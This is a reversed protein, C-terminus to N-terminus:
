RAALDPREGVRIRLGARVEPVRDGGAGLGHVATVAHALLRRPGGGTAEGVEVDELRGARVEGAVVVEGQEDDIGRADLRLRRQPVSEAEAAVLGARDLDRVDLNGGLLQDPRDAVACGRVVLGDVGPEQDARGRDPVADRETRDVDGLAMRGPLLVDVNPKSNGVVRRNLVVDALSHHVRVR